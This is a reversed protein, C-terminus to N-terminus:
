AIVEKAWLVLTDSYTGLVIAHYLEFKGSQKLNQELAELLKEPKKPDAALTVDMQMDFIEKYLKKVEKKSIQLGNQELLLNM